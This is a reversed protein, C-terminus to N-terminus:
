FSLVLVKRFLRDFLLTFLASVVHDARARNSVSPVFPHHPCFFIISPVFAALQLRFVGKVMSFLTLIHIQGGIDGFEKLLWM